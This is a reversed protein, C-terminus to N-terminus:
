EKKTAGAKASAGPEPAHRAKMDENILKDTLVLKANVLSRFPFKIDDNGLSTNVQSGIHFHLMSLCDGMGESRLYELAKLIESVFLGFKSRAGGMMRLLVLKFGAQEIVPEFIPELDTASIVAM